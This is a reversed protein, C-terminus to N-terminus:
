NIKSKIADLLSSLNEKKNLNTGEVQIGLLEEIERLM